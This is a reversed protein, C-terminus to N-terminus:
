LSFYACCELLKLVILGGCLNGIIYQVNTKNSM